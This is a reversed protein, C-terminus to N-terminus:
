LVGPATTVTSGGSEKKTTGGSISSTNQAFILALLPGTRVKFDTKASFAVNFEKTNDYSCTV